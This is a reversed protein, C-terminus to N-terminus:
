RSEVLVPEFAPGERDGLPRRKQSGCKPLRQLPQEGTEMSISPEVGDAPGMRGADQEPLQHRPGAKFFDPTPRRRPFLVQQTRGAGGHEDHAQMPRAGGQEM